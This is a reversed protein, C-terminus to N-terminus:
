STYSNRFESFREVIAKLNFPIHDHHPNEKQNHVWHFETSNSFFVTVVIINKEILFCDSLNIRTYLVSEVTTCKELSLMKPGDFKPRM